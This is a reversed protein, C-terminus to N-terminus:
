PFARNTQCWVNSVQVNDKATGKVSVVANSWRQNAKPATIALTPKRVDAFNAVLVLNSRMMFNLASVTSTIWDSGNTTQAWSTFVFGGTGNSRATASYARNIELRQGAAVGDVTGGTPPNIALTLPATLVYIFGLSNTSSMSGENDQAYARVTNTGPVAPIEIHWDAFSNDSSTPAWALDNVQAWVGTVGAYASAHGTVVVTATDNSLRTGSAPFAFALSPRSVNTALITSQISGVHGSATLTQGDTSATYPLPVIGLSLSNVIQSLGEIKGSPQVQCNTYPWDVSVQGAADILLSIPDLYNFTPCWTHVTGQYRGSFDTASAGQAFALLALLIACRAPHSAGSRVWRRWSQVSDNIRTPQTRPPSAAIRGASETTQNLPQKM